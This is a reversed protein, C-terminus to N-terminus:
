RRSFEQHRWVFCCPDNRRERGSHEEDTDPGREPSYRRTDSSDGVYRDWSEPIPGIETEKQTEGRLGRSFLERM